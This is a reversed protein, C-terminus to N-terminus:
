LGPLGVHDASPRGDGGCGAHGGRAAFCVLEESSHEYSGKSGDTAVVIIPQCGEGVLKVLTGGAYFEIDDPHPGIAMVVKAM